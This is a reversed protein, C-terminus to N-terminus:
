STCHTDEGARGHDTLAVLGLVTLVAGRPDDQIDVVPHGLGLTGSGGVQREEVRRGGVRPDGVWTSVISGAIVRNLRGVFLTIM